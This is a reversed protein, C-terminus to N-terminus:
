QTSASTCGTKAPAGPRFGDSPKRRALDYKRWRQAPAAAAAAAAAAATALLLLGLQQQARRTVPQARGVQDM